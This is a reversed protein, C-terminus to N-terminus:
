PKWQIEDVQKQRANKPKTGSMSGQIVHYGPVSRISNFFDEQEAVRKEVDQDMEMSFSINLHDQGIGFLHFRKSPFLGVTFIASPQCPKQPM